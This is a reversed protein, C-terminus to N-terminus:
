RRRKQWLKRAVWVGGIVLAIPLGAGIVPAPAGHVGGGGQNNNDQGQGNGALAPLVSLTLAVVVLAAKFV